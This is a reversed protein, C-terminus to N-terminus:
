YLADKDYKEKMEERMLIIIMQIPVEKMLIINPVFSSFCSSLMFLM